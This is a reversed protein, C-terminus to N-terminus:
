TFLYGESGLRLVGVAKTLCHGWSCSSGIALAAPTM